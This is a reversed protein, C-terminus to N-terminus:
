TTWIDGAHPPSGSIRRYINLFELSNQEIDFKGKAFRRCEESMQERVHPSTALFDIAAALEDVDKPAVLIGRTAGLIEPISGFPTAIPILGISMGELIVMPMGEFTTSPLVLIDHERLIRPWDQHAFVGKVQLRPNLRAAATANLRLPGDGYITFEVPRSYEREAARLFVEIGKELVLLGAFMVRLTDSDSRRASRSPTAPLRISNYIWGAKKMVSPMQVGFCQRETESLFIVADSFLILMNIVARLFCNARRELYRGGHFHLLVRKGTCKALFVLLLDRTLSKATLSTNSHFVKAASFIVASAATAVNSASIAGRQFMNGTQPSGVLIHIYQVEKQLAQRLEDVVTAVGSVNVVSNLSPASM